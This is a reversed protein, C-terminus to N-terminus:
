VSEVSKNGTITIIFLGKDGAKLSNLEDNQAQGAVIEDPILINRKSSIKVDSFGVAKFTDVYMQEDSIGNLCGTFQYLADQLKKSFPGQQVIDAIAFNGGTKLVRFMETIVKLKDPLLSFVGNSTIFDVVNDELPLKEIDACIFDINDIGNAAAISQAREILKPTIDFGFVNGTKGVLESLIFSDIGSACGLDAGIMGKSIPIFNFPFGCGLGLDAEPLYGPIATYLNSIPSYIAKCITERQKASGQLEAFNAIASYDEVVRLKIEAM